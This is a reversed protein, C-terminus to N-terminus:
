RVALAERLLTEVAEAAEPSRLCSRTRGVYHPEQLMLSGVVVCPGEDALARHIADVPCGGGSLHLQNAYLRVLPPGQTWVIALDLDIDRHRGRVVLTDHVPGEALDRAQALLGGPQSLNEGQLVVRLRPNLYAVDVVTDRLFAVDAVAEFVARDPRFRVTTGTRHSDGVRTLATTPIGRRFTQEFTGGARDITVVVLESLANLVALGLGLHSLHVHPTHGDFTSGAHLHLMIKGLVSPDQDM